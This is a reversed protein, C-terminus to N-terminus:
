NIKIKKAKKAKKYNFSITLIGAKMEASATSIDADEMLEFSRDFSELSDSLNETTKILLENENTSIEIDEKEYGPLTLKIEISNEDRSVTPLDYYRKVITSNFMPSFRSTNNEFIDDVLKELRTNTFFM